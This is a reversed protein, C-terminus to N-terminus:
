RRAEACRAASARRPVRPSRAREIAALREDQTLVGAFPSVQRLDTSHEDEGLFVDILRPGPNDILQSWEDLWAQAQAGRVSSRMRDLNARAVDRAPGLDGLLKSLLTRHLEL